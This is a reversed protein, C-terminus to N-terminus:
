GGLVLSVRVGVECFGVLDFDGGGQDFGGGDRLGM